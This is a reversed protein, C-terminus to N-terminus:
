AKERSRNRPDSVQDDVIRLKRKMGGTATAIGMKRIIWQTPRALVAVPRM